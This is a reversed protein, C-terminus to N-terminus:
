LAASHCINWGLAHENHFVYGFADVLGMYLPDSNNYNFTSISELLFNGWIWQGDVGDGTIELQKTSVFKEGSTIKGDAFVSRTAFVIAFKMEKFIFTDDSNKDWIEFMMKNGVSNAVAEAYDYLSNNTDSFSIHPSALDGYGNLESLLPWTGDVGSNGKDGKDGKDGKVGKIGQPWQQGDVGPDGKDGKPGMEGAPGSPGIEGRLSERNDELWQLAGKYASKYAREETYLSM